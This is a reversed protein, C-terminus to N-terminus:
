AESAAKMAAARIVEATQPENIATKGFGEHAGAAVANAQADEFNSVLMPIAGAAVIRDILEHGHEQDFRGDLVRNLLLVRGPHLHAALEDQDTVMVLDAEPVARDVAGRLMWSDPGCHGVLVMKVDALSDSM